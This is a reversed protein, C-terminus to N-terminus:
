TYTLTVPPVSAPAPTPDPLKAAFPLHRPSPIILSPGAVVALVLLRVLWGAPRRVRHEKLADPASARPRTGNPRRPWVTQSNRNLSMTIERWRRCQSRASRDM